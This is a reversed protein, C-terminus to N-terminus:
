HVTLISSSCMGHSWRDSINKAIAATQLGTLSSPLDEPKISKSYGLRLLPLLWLMLSNSIIGMNQDLLTSQSDAKLLGGKRTEVVLLALMLCMSVVTVILQGEAFARLALTRIRAIDFLAMLSLFVSLITSPQSTRVYEM